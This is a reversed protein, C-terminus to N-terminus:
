NSKEDLSQISIDGRRPTRKYNSAPWGYADTGEADEDLRDWVRDFEVDSLSTYRGHDGTSTRKAHRNSQGLRTSSHGHDSKAFQEVDDSRDFDDPKSNSISQEQKSHDALVSTDALHDSCNEDKFADEVDFSRYM